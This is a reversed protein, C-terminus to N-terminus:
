GREEIPVYRRTDHGLYIQRPRAIKQEPDLLMEEWQAIWGSTRPIAFLVPFMTMPFGMSQYILGTYFDVNPYLKRKIFYEDELAIRECELAIELLPNKGMLDFVQYAIHKIIRARPDYNKYVRHGFGMLKVEGAKVRKIFAAVNQVSGIEMLMRLVEENAGGHLPGYLAAIAAATASYPDVHSSGVSRVTNASCNQEHDAHLIFLIDLARELTPNPRYKAESTRFLMNLFNGPYSLDNDPYVYPMGLTHRYAFAAITPMKGILRYTQKGRSEPSFIDKADHYFTSLAAITSITMGMPHADYHFGDLFKKISEHIFTHHTIHYTWDKLQAATPLEGHLLLYATELYTSKEALDEIPYGRYRLIGADGDIYTIRSICSATNNFAPDYSMLGFEKPDVKIQRLDAARITGHTVPIEYSKGTRNDTITLTERATTAGDPTRTQTASLPSSMGLDETAASRNGLTGSYVWLPRLPFRVTPRADVTRPGASNGPPWFWPASRTLDVEQCYDNYRTNNRASWLLGGHDLDALAGLAAVGVVTPQVSIESKGKGIVEVGRVHL